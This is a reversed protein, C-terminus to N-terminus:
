SVLASLIQDQIVWLMRQPVLQHLTLFQLCRKKRKSPIHVIKEVYIFHSALPTSVLEANHMNDMAAAADEKEIYTVFGFGRHKQTSIDLPTTVDKIDGFPIFASHLITETVNEELGGPNWALNM